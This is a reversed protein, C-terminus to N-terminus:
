APTDFDVLTTPLGVGAVLSNALTWVATSNVDVASINVALPSTFTVVEQRASCITSNLTALSASTGDICLSTINGSCRNPAFPDAIEGTVYFLASPSSAPLGHMRVGCGVGTGASNSAVSLQLDRTANNAAIFLWSMDGIAGATSSGLIVQVVEVQTGNIPSRALVAMTPEVGSSIQLEAVYVVNDPGTGFMLTLSSSLAETCQLWMPFSLGGPLAGGGPLWQQPAATLCKRPFEAARQSLESFRGDIMGIRTTFDTPGPGFLREKIVQGPSQQGQLQRLRSKRLGAPTSALVPPQLAPVSLATGSSSSKKLGLGLGLGLALAVVALVGFTIGVKAVLSLGSKKGPKIIELSAITQNSEKM